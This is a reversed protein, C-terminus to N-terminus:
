ILGNVNIYMRYIRRHVIYICVINEIYEIYVERGNQVEQKREVDGLMEEM